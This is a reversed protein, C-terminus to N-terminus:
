KLRSNLLLASVKPLDLDRVLDNLEEQGFLMPRHDGTYKYESDDASQCESSSIETGSEEFDKLVAPPLPM